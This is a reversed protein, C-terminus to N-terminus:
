LGVSENRKLGMKFVWKALFYLVFCWLIGGLFVLFTQQLNYNGLYIQMPHHLMYSWPLFTFTQTISNTSLFALAGALFPALINKTELLINSEVIWFSIAGLLLDICFYIVCAFVFFILLFFLTFSLDLKADSLFILGIFIFTNILTPYFNGGIVAFFEYKLWGSPIILNKALSGYAIKDRIEWGIEGFLNISKFFLNGLLFYELYDTSSLFSGYITLSIALPSLDRFIIFIAATRYVISLKFNYVIIYWWKYYKGLIKELFTPTYTKDLM